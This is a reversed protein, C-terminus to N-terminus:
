KFYISNVLVMFLIKYRMVSALLNCSAFNERSM